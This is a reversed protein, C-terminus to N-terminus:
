DKNESEQDYEFKYISGDFACVFLEGDSDEGFSAINLDTHALEAQALLEGKEHRLGWLRGSIYDAYLYVGVLRQLRKGRYVYGGTVSRGLEQSYEVLPDIMEAEKDGKYAHFGERLNWGYNGGPRILDIEEWANQGVDGALLDGNERDFSMRWVNRLGYAYIEPRAREKDVFPNEPPIAYKQEGETKSVDIRLIKGLLVELNQANGWPDGASGGDGISIYLYDDDEGFLLCCGNHNGPRRAGQLIPKKIELIINESDPDAQSPDEKSCFYSALVGRRPNQASYYVFFRRNESYDPDFALALLGEENHGTYVKQRIDLFTKAETTEPDNQFSKVVGNQEVVFFTEPSNKTYTLALPFQFRLKPFAKVLKLKPLAGKKEEQVQEQAQAKEEQGKGCGLSGLLFFLSCSIAMLSGLLLVFFNGPMLRQNSIMQSLVTERFVM